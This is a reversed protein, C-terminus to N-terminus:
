DGICACEGIANMAELAAPVVAAFEGMRRLRRLILRPRLHLLRVPAAAAAVLFPMVAAVTGSPRQPPAVFSGGLEELVGAALEAAAVARQGISARLRGGALGAEWAADLAGQLVHVMVLLPAFVDFVGVQHLQAASPPDMELVGAVVGGANVSMGM